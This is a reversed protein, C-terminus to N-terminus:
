KSILQQAQGCKEQQPHHTPKAQSWQHNNKSKHRKHRPWIRKSKSQQKLPRLEQSKDLSIQYFMPNEPPTWTKPQIQRKNYKPNPEPPTHDKANLFKTDQNSGEQTQFRINAVWIVQNSPSSTIQRPKLSLQHKPTYITYKAKRKYKRWVWRLWKSECTINAEIQKIINIMTSSHTTILHSVRKSSWVLYGAINASILM